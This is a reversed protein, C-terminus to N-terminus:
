STIFYEVNQDHHHQRLSQMQYFAYLQVSLVVYNVSLLLFIDWEGSNVIM